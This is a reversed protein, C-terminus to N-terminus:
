GDSASTRGEGWRLTTDLRSIAHVLAALATRQAQQYPVPGCGTELTREAAADAVRYGRTQTWPTLDLQGQRAHLFLQILL